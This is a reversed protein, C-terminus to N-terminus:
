LVQVAKLVVEKVVRALELLKQEMEEILQVQNLMILQKCMEVVGEQVM